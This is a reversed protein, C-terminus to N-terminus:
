ARVPLQGTNSNDASSTSIGIPTLNALNCSQLIKCDQLGSVTRIGFSTSCTCHCRSSTCCSSGRSAARPTSIGSGGPWHKPPARRWFWAAGTVAAALLALLLLGEILAFLGGGEAAPIRGRLLGALDRGVAGLGGAIFPFYLRWRGGLSCTVAYSFALLLAVFGLVVHSYDLFGAGDPIRRLM